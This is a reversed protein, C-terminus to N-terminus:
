GNQFGGLFGRNFNGTLDLIKGEDEVAEGVVLMLIENTANDGVTESFTIGLPASTDFSQVAISGRITDTAPNRNVYVATSSQGIGTNTTPVISESLMSLSSQNSPGTTGGFTNNIDSLNNTNNSPGCRSMLLAGLPAFALPVQQSGIFSLSNFSVADWLGGQLVLYITTSPWAVSVNVDFGSGTFGAFDAEGIKTGAQDSGILLANTQQRRNANSTPVGDESDWLTSGRKSPSVAWGVNLSAGQEVNIGNNDANMSAAIVVDGQFGLGTVSQIGLSNTLNVSHGVAFNTLGGIILYNLLFDSPPTNVVNIVFEGAAMSVMVAHFEVGGTVSLGQIIRNSSWKSIVNTSPENDRDSMTIGRGTSALGLGIYNRNDNRVGDVNNRGGWFIIAQGVLSTNALNVTQNGASTSLAFIGQETVIAM